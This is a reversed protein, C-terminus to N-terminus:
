PNNILQLLNKMHDIVTIAGVNMLKEALVSRYEPLIHDAGIYGIAKIGAKVAAQIGAPSDEIVLCEEAHIGLQDFVLHYIDPLPKPRPQDDEFSNQTSFINKEDIFQILGTTSLCLNLRDLTSNSVVAMKMGLQNLTKLTEITGITPKAFKELVKLMRREEEKVLFRILPASITINKEYTIDSLIQSFTKGIWQKIDSKKYNPQEFADMIENLLQCAVESGYAEADVLTGDHDFLIWKIPKM